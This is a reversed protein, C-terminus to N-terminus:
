LRVPTESRPIGLGPEGDNDNDNDNDYDRNMADDRRRLTSIAIIVVVM